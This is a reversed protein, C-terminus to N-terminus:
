IINITGLYEMQHQVENSAEGRNLNGSNREQAMLESYLGPRALISLLANRNSLIQPSSLKNNTKKFANSIKILDYPGVVRATNESHHFPDEILLDYSINSNPPLHSLLIKEFPKGKLRGRFVNIMNDKALEDICSFKNFFSLLLQSLSSRNIPRYTQSKLKAINKDCIELIRQELECKPMYRHAILQELVLTPDNSHEAVDVHLNGKYIKSLPPLIPPDCTQLHHIVLLTLSYTNLTGSKADNINQANAWEKVLLVLDKFRSDLENIKNLIKSKIQAAHNDITIDCSINYQKSEYSILPVRAEPIFRINRAIGTRELAANVLRLAEQKDGHRFCPTSRLGDISFDFDSWKSQLDAVYSGYPKLIADKSISLIVDILENIAGIGNVLDNQSPEISTLIDKLCDELIDGKTSKSKHEMKNM